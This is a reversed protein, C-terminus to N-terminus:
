LTSHTKSKWLPPNAVAVAFTAPVQGWSFLRERSALREMERRSRKSGSCATGPGGGMTAEPSVSYYWTLSLSLAGLKTKPAGQLGGPNIDQTM